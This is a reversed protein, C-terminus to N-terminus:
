QETQNPTRSRGLVLKGLIIGVATAVFGSALPLDHYYPFPGIMYAFIFAAILFVTYVSAGYKMESDPNEKIRSGLVFGLLLGLVLPGLYLIM